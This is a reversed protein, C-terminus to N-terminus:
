FGNEVKKMDQNNMGLDTLGFQRNRSTLLRLVAKEGGVIPVISVRVDLEEEKLKIQLKGDQASLHEDTRLKSLVKIRTIVQDHLNEPLTLVDHLVGDIRFRVLSRNEEPEIHIDSAKNEYAYEILTDVMQSVPAESSSKGAQDVQQKLLEDFTKQIEKKYLSFSEKIDRPTAFYVEIKQGTKKSLLSEFESSRSKSTAIKIAKENRGFVITQQTRAVSEPITHLLNQPISLKNVVVFPLKLYDAILKGLNEDSILDSKLLADYFPIKESTSQDQLKKLQEASLIENQLLLNYLDKDAIIM